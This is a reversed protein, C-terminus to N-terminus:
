SGSPVISSFYDIKKGGGRINFNVKENFAVDNFMEDYWNNHNNSRLGSLVQIFRNYIEAYLSLDALRGLRRLEHVSSRIHFQEVLSYLVVATRVNQITLVLNLVTQM